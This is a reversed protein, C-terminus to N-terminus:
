RRRSNEYELYWCVSNSGSLTSFSLIAAQTSSPTRFIEIGLFLASASFGFSFSISTFYGLRGPNCDNSEGSGNPVRYRQPSAPNKKAPSNMEKHSTVYIPNLGSKVTLDSKEQRLPKCPHFFHNSKCETKPIALYSLQNSRM